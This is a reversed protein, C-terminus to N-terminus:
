QSTVVAVDRVVIGEDPVGQIKHFRLSPVIEVWGENALSFAFTTWGERVLAHGLHRGELLVCIFAPRHGPILSTEVLLTGAKEIKAFAPRGRLQLVLAKLQELPRGDPAAALWDGPRVRLLEESRAGPPNPPRPLAGEESHVIADLEEGLADTMGRALLITALERHAEASPLARSLEKELGASLARDAVVEGLLAPDLALGRALDTRGEPDEREFRLRALGADVLIDAGFPFAHTADSALAFAEAREPTLLALLALVHANTPESARAERLDAVSRSLIAAEEDMHALRQSNRLAAVLSEDPSEGALRKAAALASRELGLEFAQFRPMVVAARYRAVAPRLAIAAELDSVRQAPERTDDEHRVTPAALREAELARLPYPLAGALALILVLALARARGGQLELRRASPGLLLGLCFAMFVLTGELELDFDVFAHIAAAVLGGVIGRALVARPGDARRWARVSCLAIWGVALLCVPIGLESPVELVDCHAHDLVKRDMWAAQVRPYVVEFTGLGWGSLPREAILQLTGRVFAVRSVSGSADQPLDSFRSLLPGVGFAVIGLTAFLVFAVLVLGGTRRDRRPSALIVFALVGTILALTGGRSFSAVAGLVGLFAAVLLLLQKWFDPHDIAVALRTRFTPITNRWSSPQSLAAALVIPTAIALFGAFHNRNVYTGTVFGPYTKPWLLIYERGGFHEALGYLTEFGVLAAVGLALRRDSRESRAAISCTLFFVLAGTAYRVLAERTREPAISVGAEAQYLALGLTAVVPVLVLPLALTLKGRVLARGFFVAGFGLAAILHASQFAPHVGGFFFVGAAALLFLAVEFARDIV